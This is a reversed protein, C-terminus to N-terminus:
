KNLVYLYTKGVKVKTVQKQYKKPFNFFYSAFLTKDNAKSYINDFYKDIFSPQWYFFVKNYKSIEVSLINAKHIDVNNRNIFKTSKQFLVLVPNKEVSTVSYGRKALYFCIRGFGSGLDIFKDTKKLKLEQEIKKYVSRPTGVFPVEYFMSLTLGGMVALILLSVIALLVKISLLIYLLVENM